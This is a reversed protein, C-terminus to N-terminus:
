MGPIKIESLIKSFLNVAQKIESSQIKTERYMLDSMLTCFDVKSKEKRKKYKESLEIYSLNYKMGDKEKFIERALKDLKDLDKESPNRSNIKKM